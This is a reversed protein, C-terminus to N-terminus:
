IKLSWKKEGRLLSKLQEEPMTEIGIAKADQVLSDILLSMQKTDFTSSGYYLIVRTCNPIKSPMTEAQWGLGNRKWASILQEVAKDQVCVIDSVGGIERIASRYVETKTMSRKEAIKDVLVWAYANADLSRRKRYKKVTIDVDTEKLDEFTQRFDEDLEFTVRQHGDFSFSYDKIRGKM